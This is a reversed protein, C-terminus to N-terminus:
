KVEMLYLTRLSDKIQVVEEIKFLKSFEEEFKQQNYDTFIDKRSGLLRQANSDEKPVFEIVLSTCNESFLEAIMELPLNNAIALHHVLALAMITDPRGREWITIRERNGWGIGPSPNTLDLLLPLVNRDGSRKVELYNLEVCAPDIDFSVTKAGTRGAISSYAGTNAGLDWVSKPKVRDLFESVLQKKHAEATETYNNTAKYYDAWEVGRHARKLGWKLGKVCSELDDAIHQLVTRNIRNLTRGLKVSKKAYHRQTTAHLHIHLLLRYNFRASFSLLSSALDLPIGDLHIRLLQSMRVDKYSMLALPALFHECFQRYGQWADGDRYQEFSLTDILIPGGDAFQINYASADKLVMGFELAMKQIALMTLSADKLMSFSWEYPYSIFDVLEPRIVKYADGTRAYSADVETHPVLLKHNVLNDYLSSSMLHDYDDRYYENVQRYLTSDQTFMFGSPDRFSSPIDGVLIM